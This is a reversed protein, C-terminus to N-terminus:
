GFCDWRWRKLLLKLLLLCCWIGNEDMVSRWRKEDMVSQWRKLLLLGM